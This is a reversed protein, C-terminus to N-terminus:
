STGYGGHLRINFEYYLFINLRERTGAASDGFLRLRKAKGTGRSVDESCVGCTDPMEEVLMEEAM